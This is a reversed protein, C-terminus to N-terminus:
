PVGRPRPFALRSPLPRPPRAAKAAVGQAARAFAQRQEQRRKGLEIIEAETARQQARMTALLGRLAAPPATTMIGGEIAAFLSRV